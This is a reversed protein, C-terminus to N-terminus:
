YTKAPDRLSNGQRPLTANEGQRHSASFEVGAAHPAPVHAWVPPFYHILMRAAKRSQHTRCREKCQRSDHRRLRLLNRLRLHCLGTRLGHRFLHQDGSGQDVAGRCDTHRHGIEAHLVEGLGAIDGDAIQKARHRHGIHRGRRRRYIGVALLCAFGADINATKVRGTRARQQHHIAHTKRRLRIAEARNIGRDNRRQRQIAHVNQRIARRGSISRICNGAHDIDDQFPIEVARDRQQM